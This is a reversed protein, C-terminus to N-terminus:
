ETTEGETERSVDMAELEAQISEYIAAPSSVDNEAGMPLSAGDLKEIISSCLAYDGAQYATQLQILQFLAEQTEEMDSLETELDEINKKLRDNVVDAAALQDQLEIVKEQQAQIEQIDSVSNQLQGIGESTTRQHMLLSLAMLLFAVIFMNLINMIVPKGTPKKEETPPAPIPEETIAEAGATRKELKM